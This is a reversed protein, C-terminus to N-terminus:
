APASLGARGLVATLDPPLDDRAEARGGAPTPFALKYAHLFPREVGVSRSLESVGGYVRDGLIPHGIHSLHVRIQHTRGTELRVDLLALRDTAEVVRYHTVAAKGEPVVAMLSLHRPHRGIPAEVTGSASPVGRVLAYYGREIRRDKLAARLFRQADDDKAVLLLGSTDKDLRHVIGPRLPDLRALPRGSALLANVLTGGQHGRVPHTVMGPPKSVVLVDDDEYRIAIPIEEPQPLRDEPVIVEGAVSEGDALRHAPKVTAGDVTISGGAVAARAVARTVGSRRAVVLDIREGMETEDPIFEM